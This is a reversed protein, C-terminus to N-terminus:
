GRTRGNLQSQRNIIYVLDAGQIKIEGGIKIEFDDQNFKDQRNGVNKSSSATNGTSSSNGGGSSGLSSISGAVATGLAILAVGAAIAVGANLSSLSAQFAEIGLGVTLLMEGFQTLIGGFVKLLADGFNETGSIASGIASGIGSLANHVIPTLDATAKKIDTTMGEYAKGYGAFGEQTILFDYM